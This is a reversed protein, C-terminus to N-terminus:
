AVMPLPCLNDNAIVESWETAVRNNERSLAEAIGTDAENLRQVFEFEEGIAHAVKAVTKLTLNAGEESFIQSVRGASYGLREALMKQSVGNNRMAKQLAIQISFIMDEIAFAEAAAENTPAFAKSVKAM